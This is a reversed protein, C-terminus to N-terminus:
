AINLKSKVLDIPYTSVGLVSRPVYYVQLTSLDEPSQSAEARPSRFLPQAVRQAPLIAPAM